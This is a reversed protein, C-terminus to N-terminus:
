LFVPRYPQAWPWLRTQILASMRNKVLFNSALGIAALVLFDRFAVSFKASTMAPALSVGVIYAGLGLWLLNRFFAAKKASSQAWFWLPLAVAAVIFGISLIGTSFM